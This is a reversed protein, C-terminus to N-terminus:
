KQFFAYLFMSFLSCTRITEKTATVLSLVKLVENNLIENLGLYMRLGQSLYMMKLPSFHMMFIKQFVQGQISVQLTLSRLGDKFVSKSEQLLPPVAHKPLSFFPM